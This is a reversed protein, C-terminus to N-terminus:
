LNVRRLSEPRLNQQCVPCRNKQSLWEIIHDMHFMSQCMPCQSVPKDPKLILKCIMCVDVKKEEISWRGITEIEMSIAEGTLTQSSVTKKNPPILTFDILDGILTSESKRKSSM